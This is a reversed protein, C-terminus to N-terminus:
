YVTADINILKVKEVDDDWVLADFKWTAGPQLNTIIDFTTGIQNGDKDFEAFEVKVYDIAFTATNKITGIIHGIFGDDSFTLKDSVELYQVPHHQQEYQLEALKMAKNITDGPASCAITLFMILAFILSVRVKKLM